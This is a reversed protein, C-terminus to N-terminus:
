KSAGSPYHCVTVGIGFADCLKHQLEHKWARIRAGNSGGSDALILLHDAGTYTRHGEHTWPM